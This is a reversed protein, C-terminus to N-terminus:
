NQQDALLLARGPEGDTPEAQNRILEGTRFSCGAAVAMRASADAHDRIRDLSSGLGPLRGALTWVWGGYREGLSWCVRPVLGVSPGKGADHFLAALLLEPDDHGAARLAAQVDVGHRQDAPHMADFLALQTPTLGNVLSGRETATLAPHLYRAVRRLKGAWWSM